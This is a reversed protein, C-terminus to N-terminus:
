AATGPVAGQSGLLVAIIDGDAAAAELAIGMVFSGSLAATASAGSADATTVVATKAKGNADTAVRAGAAIAAGAKVKVVGGVAVSATQGSTPNNTLVGVAAEGAANCVTVTDAASIECFLYQSASLDAGAAASIEVLNSERSM